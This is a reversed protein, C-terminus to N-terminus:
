QFTVIKKKQFKTFFHISLKLKFILFSVSRIIKELLLFFFRILIQHNM